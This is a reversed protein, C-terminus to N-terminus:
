QKGGQNIFQGVLFEEVEEVSFPEGNYKLLRNEVPIEFDAYLKLVNAFQGSANNELIAVKEANKLDSTISKPLPYVQHFHMIALGKIQLNDVAEKVPHYNSGWCVIYSTANDTGIISPLQAVEEILRMRKHYRKKVMEPRILNLNETIHGWEDHEDSDVRVLGKGFGPVGRPSLGNETLKYRKYDEATEVFGYENKVSSLDLGEINYYSDVFYQDTLIFIPIQYRDALNMAQQTLYFGQEITGPAFIIRAFEGHGAYLALNLDEQSTRTPLGTAPGPRMALHIVAPTELMAALSVGEEMLAFGGGSTSVLARAGAYWAGVTKNIAAIEDEAQDVVIEFKESQEALFTLVGTSPSMPYSSIFNCGGAIAGMGIAQAGNFIMEDRIAPFAKIDFSFKNKFDLEEGKEYGKAFAQLNKELVGADRGGFRSKLSEIAISKDIKFLACITGVAIVNVSKAEGVSKAIDSLPLITLNEPNAMSCEGCVASDAIVRTDDSFRRILHMLADRHFPMLIDMRKVFSAKKKSSIRIETSNMGGRVRSMYEKTAFVNYGATKLIGVLLEEVTQVGQGAAGALVLSIENM